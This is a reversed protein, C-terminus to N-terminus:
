KTFLQPHKAVVANHAKIPDNGCNALAVDFERKYTAAKDEKENALAKGAIANEPTKVKAPKELLAKADKEFEASNELAAVQADREAITLIGKQIALDTTAEARGHREAKRATQENALAARAETAENELAKEKDAKKKAEETEAEEDEEDGDPEECQANCLTQVAKVVETDPADNALKVGKGALFGILLNRM